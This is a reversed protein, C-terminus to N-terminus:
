PWPDVMSYDMKVRKRKILFDRGGTVHEDALFLRQGCFASAVIVSLLLFVNTRRERARKIAVGALAVAKQTSKTMKDVSHIALTDSQHLPRAAGFAFQSKAEPTNPYSPVATITIQRVIKPL